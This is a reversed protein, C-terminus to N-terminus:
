TAAWCATMLEAWRSDCDPPVPPRLSGDTVGGWIEAMGRDGYPADGLQWIEWLVVGFSYVDVKETVLGLATSGQVHSWASSEAFEGVLGLRADGEARGEREIGDRRNKSRLGASQLM